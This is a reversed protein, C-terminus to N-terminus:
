KGRQIKEDHYNLRNDRAVRMRDDADQLDQVTAENRQFAEKVKKINRKAAIVEDGTRRGKDKAM